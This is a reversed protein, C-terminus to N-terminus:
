PRGPDNEQNVNVEDKWEQLSKPPTTKKPPKRNLLKTMLAGVVILALKGFWDCM